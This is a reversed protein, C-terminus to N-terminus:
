FNTTNQIAISGGGSIPFNSKTTDRGYSLGANPGDLGFGSSTIDITVIAADAVPTAVLGTGIGTALYAALRNSNQKISRKNSHTTKMATKSLPAASFRM